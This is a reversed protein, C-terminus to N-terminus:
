SRSTSAMRCSSGSTSASCSTSRSWGREPIASRVATAASAIPATLWRNTAAIEPVGPAVHIAAVPRSCGPVAAYPMASSDRYGASVHCTSRSGRIGILNGIYRGPGCRTCITLSSGRAAISARSSVGSPGIVTALVWRDNTGPQFRLCSRRSTRSRRPKGPGRTSIPSRFM